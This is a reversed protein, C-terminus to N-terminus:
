NILNTELEIFYIFYLFVLLVWWKVPSAEFEVWWNWKDANEPRSLKAKVAKLAEMVYQPLYGIRPVTTYYDVVTGFGRVEEESVIFRVPIQGQWIQRRITDPSQNSPDSPDLVLPDTSKQHTSYKHQLLPNM